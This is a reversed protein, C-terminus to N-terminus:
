APQAPRPSRTTSATWSPAPESRLLPVLAVLALVLAPYQVVALVSWASEERGAAEGALSAFDWFAHLLMGVVLLGTARRVVYLVTGMVFAFVVQVLTAGLGQGFFANVVHILGFLLCSVFWAGAEAFSGRLGVLGVGRVLMEESFGVLLVGLVLGGLQLAAISGLDVGALLGLGALVFCGPVLLMWRKGPPRDRLAPAWWGLYTTVAAILAAGIGVPLVIGRWPTEHVAEYDVGTIAWVLSVVACYAIVLGITVAARPQVKM